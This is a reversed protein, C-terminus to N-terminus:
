VKGSVVGRDVSAGIGVVGGSVSEEIGVVGDWVSACTGVVGGSVCAGIEVVPLTHWYHPSPPRPWKLSNVHIYYQDGYFSFVEM